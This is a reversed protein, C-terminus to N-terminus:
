VWVLSRRELIALFGYGFRSANSHTDSNRSACSDVGWKSMDLRSWSLRQQCDTQTGWRRSKANLLCPKRQVGPLVRRQQLLVKDIERGDAVTCFHDLPAGSGNSHAVIFGQLYRIAIKIRLLAEFCQPCTRHAHIIPQTQHNTVLLYVLAVHNRKLAIRFIVHYSLLSKSLIQLGQFARKRSGSDWLRNFLTVSM